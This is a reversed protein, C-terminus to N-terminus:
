KKRKKESDSQGNEERARKTYRIRAKGRKGNLVNRLKSLFIQELKDVAPGSTVSLVNIMLDIFCNPWLNVMEENNCKRTKIELVLEELLSIHVVNKLFQGTWKDTPYGKSIVKLQNIIKPKASITLLGQRTTIKPILAKVKKEWEKLQDGKLEEVDSEEPDCLEADETAPTKEV